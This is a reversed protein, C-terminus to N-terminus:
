RTQRFAADHREAEANMIEVIDRLSDDSLDHINRHLRLYEVLGCPCDYVAQIMMMPEVYRDALATFRPNLGLARLKELLNWHEVRGPNQPEARFNIRPAKLFLVGM